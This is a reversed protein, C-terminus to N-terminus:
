TSVTVSGVSFSTVFVDLAGTPSECEPTMVLPENSVDPDYTWGTAPPCDTGGPATFVLAWGTSGGENPAGFPVDGSTSVTITWGTRSSGQLRFRLRAGVASAPDFTWNEAGCSGSVTPIDYEGFRIQSTLCLDTFEASEKSTLALTFASKNFSYTSTGFPVVCCIGTWTCSGTWTITVPDCEECGSPDPATCCCLLAAAANNAM